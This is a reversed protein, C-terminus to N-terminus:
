NMIVKNTYIQGDGAIVQIFYIGPVMNNKRTLDFSNLGPILTGSGKSILRGSSDTLKMQYDTVIGSKIFYQATNTFPNPQIFLEGIAPDVGLTTLQGNNFNLNNLQVQISQSEEEYNLIEFVVMKVDKWDFDEESLFQSKALTYKREEETLQITVRPQEEWLVINEKVMVVNVIAQGSADFAFNSYEDLDVPKFKPGLGRFINISTNLEAELKINRNLSYITNDEVPDSGTIEYFNVENKSEDFETGWPGDAFFLDDMAGHETSIRCGIDYVDKMDISIMDRHTDNLTYDLKVDKADDLETASKKGELIAHQSKNKNVLYLNLKDNVISGHSVFVKPANSVEISAIKSHQDIRDFTGELLKILSEMGNTWIQFNYIEPNNTYYEKLWHNEIHAGKEDIYMAFSVAYEVNGNAQLLEVVILQNGDYFLTSIDKIQAGDLRDCIYKSHEYTENETKLLLVTALRRDGSIYDASFVETANTIHILDEPSTVQAITEPLVDTPIFISMDFGTRQNSNIDGQQFTPYDEIGLDQKKRVFNRKAIALGLRSNSELGGDNGQSTNCQPDEGDILGDGNDDVGNDCIEICSTIQQCEADECDIFGDSDDDIGNNCIEVLCINSNLCDPDECDILGDGDDDIGNDCNIEFPPLASGCNFGDSSSLNATANLVETAINTTIDISYIKGSIGNAAFLAGTRNAWVSGYFGNDNNIPGILDSYIVEGTNQNIQILRNDNGVSYLKNDSYHFAFDSGGPYPIGTDEWMLNEQNLDIRIINDLQNAMYLIGADDITAMFYVSNGPLVLGLSGLAGNNGVLILLHQGNSIASAYVHGDVPNMAAGNISNIGSLRFIDTYFQNEIDLTALFRNNIIQYFREDCEFCFDFTECDSDQCDIAGDGDDDIRNFCIEVQGITLQFQLGLVIVLLFKFVKNLLMISFPNAYSKKDM